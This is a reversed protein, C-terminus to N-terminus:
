WNQTPPHSTGDTNLLSAEVEQVDAQLVRFIALNDGIEALGSSSNPCTSLLSTIRAGVRAMKLKDLLRSLAPDYSSSTTPSLLSPANQITFDEMIIPPVGLSTSISYTLLKRIPSYLQSVIFCGVWTRVWERRTDETTETQTSSYESSLFSKHLGLCQAMHTATSAYMWAQENINSGHPYTQPWTALLLFAQVLYVSKHPSLLNQPAATNVTQTLPWTLAHNPTDLTALLLLTHYLLPCVTFTHAPTLTNDVIPLTPHFKQFFSLDACKM